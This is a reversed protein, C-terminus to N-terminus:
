RVVTVSGNKSIHQSGSLTRAQIQYAYVGSEVLQGQYHGDWLRDITDAEFVLEGWRNFIRISFEGIGRGIAGWADNLGDGDPTFANPVFLLYPSEVKIENSVSQVDANGQQYAVVRYSLSAQEDQAKLSLPTLAMLYISIGIIIYRLM